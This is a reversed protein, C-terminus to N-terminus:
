AAEIVLEGLTGVEVTQGPVVFTTALGERIVAPGSLRAGAALSSREHEAADIPEDALYRLEIQRGALHFDGASAAAIPAFEVKESPVRLEVRYSVGQVPILVRKHGAKGFTFGIAPAAIVAAKIRPDAIWDEDRVHEDAPIPHAALLKCVYTTVPAFTHARLHLANPQDAALHRFDAITPQCSPAVFASNRFDARVKAGKEMLKPM